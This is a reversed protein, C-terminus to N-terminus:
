LGMKDVYNCFVFYYENDVRASFSSSEQNSLICTKASIYKELGWVSDSIKPELTLWYKNYWSKKTTETTVMNPVKQFPEPLVLYCYIKICNFHYSFVYM